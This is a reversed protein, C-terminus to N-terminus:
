QREMLELVRAQTKKIRELSRLFVEEPLIPKGDIVVPPDVTNQIFTKVASKLEEDYVEQVLEQKSKGSTAAVETVM